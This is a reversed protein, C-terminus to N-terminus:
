LHACECSPNGGTGNHKFTCGGPCSGLEGSKVGTRVRFSSFKKTDIKTDKPYLKYLEKQLELKDTM